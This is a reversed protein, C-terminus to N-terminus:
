FDICPIYCRRRRVKRLDEGRRYVLRRQTIEKRFIEWVSDDEGHSESSARLLDILEDLSDVDDDSGEKM